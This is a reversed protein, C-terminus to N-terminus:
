SRSHWKWASEVITQLDSHKCSFGLEQQIRNPDAILMDADGPRRKAVNVKLEKGTVKKIMDLVEKNSHGTGTGVNYIGGKKQSLAKLALMHAEILDHIHIYDRICTGDSTNYDEGYLTFPKDSLLASIANPIIHTEPDHAEGMSGDIAAGAANFYRLAAFSLGYIKHYWSLMQEIMLKSEGYPNTPHTPHSEPIPLQSPNGYVGATSSFIFAPVKNKMVADLLKFTAFSNNQFYLDPKEMSEGMSIYGAFHVVADFSVTAFLSEIFNEDNLDGVLLKARQDVAEKHGRLLNDAVVVEFKEDLLRKVMFSGIYGAGGTVLIRAM